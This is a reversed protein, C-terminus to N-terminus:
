GGEDNFVINIIVMKLFRKNYDVKQKSVSVVDVPPLGYEM